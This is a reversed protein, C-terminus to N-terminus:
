DGAAGACIEGYIATLRRCAEGSGAGTKELATRRIIGPDMGALAAPLARVARALDAADGPAFTLGDVGETVSAGVNGLASALVPTGLLHAESPVLAFSEYCLSAAVVAM